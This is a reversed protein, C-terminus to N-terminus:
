GVIRLGHLPAAEPAQDPPDAPARETGPGIVLAVDLLRALDDIAAASLSGKGARFRSLTALAVGSQRALESLSLESRRMAERIGHTVM